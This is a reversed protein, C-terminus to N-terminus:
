RGYSTQTLLRYGQNFLEFLATQVAAEMKEKVEEPVPAGNVMWVQFSVAVPQQQKAM